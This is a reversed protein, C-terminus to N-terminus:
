SIGPLDLALALYYTAPLVFLLGDFRDLVGGHGPILNGMDKVGLDRKLASEALDGITAVVAVVIGLRLADLPDDNWPVFGGFLFFLLISAILVALWGGILGELTKNPSIHPAIQRQGMSSGVLLGFVDYAVTCIIAGLLIGIGNNLQLILAAYSGLGGVWLVGLVTVGLNAVKDDEDDVFLFWMFAFLTFVFLVVPLGIDGRWYRALPAAASAALGIPVAPRYGARRAATFFEAAGLACVVVVIIMAYRPGAMFLAIAVAFMVLGAGIASTMNRGGTGRTETFGGNGQNVTGQPRRAAPPNPTSRGIRAKAAGGAPITVVSPESVPPAQDDLDDWSLDFDDDDDDDRRVPAEPDILDEFGIHEPTVGTSREGQWVPGRASLSSWDDFDDDTARDSAFIRPIDGTPPDTWHPLPGTDTFRLPPEAADDPHSTITFRGSAGFPLADGGPGADTGDDDGWSLEGIVDDGSDDAHEDSRDGPDDDGGHVPLRNTENFAEDNGGRGLDSM